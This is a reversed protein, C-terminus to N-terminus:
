LTGPVHNVSKLDIKRILYNCYYIEYIGENITFRLAVYDNKLAKGIRFVKGEFTIKGKTCVKRVIDTTNYEVPPLVEPFPKWSPKYREGPTKFNIAEHPRQHNYKYRWQDFQKQCYNYDSAMMYKLLETKLTRHFREEKGQTQPHYPRGHTSQINLRIFWKELMTVSSRQYGDNCGTGWPAGNDTLIVDPLGYTRFVGELCSKVTHYTQNECATLALNYRSHDDTITLPHCLKSNNLKFPGKFDMQWMANPYAHEFRTWKKIKARDAKIRGNRKLIANITSPAPVHKIGLRDLIHYIKKAGWEPNEDRIGLIKEEIASNTQFPSRQPRRSLERLGSIGQDDYRSLWKYGTPRSINFRRCLEHHSLSGSKALKIFEVKQEMVTRSEFPM